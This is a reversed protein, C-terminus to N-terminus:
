SNQTDALRDPAMNADTTFRALRKGLNEDVLQMDESLHTLEAM